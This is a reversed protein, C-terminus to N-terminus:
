CIYEPDRQEERYRATQNFESPAIRETSTNLPIRARIEIDGNDDEM